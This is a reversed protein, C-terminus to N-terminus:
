GAPRRREKSRPRMACLAEIEYEEVFSETPQVALLRGRLVQAFEQMRDGLLVPSCYSTSYQLGIVEEVTRSITVKRRWAGVQSFKSRGLIQEHREEPHAYFGTGVRRRGGLFEGIVEAVVDGWEPHTEDPQPSTVRAGSIVAVGGNQDTLLDCLDLMRARDTWHFSSGFTVLRFRGRVMELLDEGRGEVFSVRGGVGEREAAARAESLMESDPDIALVPVGRKALPISIQGTGTGMDVVRTGAALHYTRILHDFLETPYGPRYRAYHWATGRFATTPDYSM